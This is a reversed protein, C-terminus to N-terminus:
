IIVVREASGEDSRPKENTSKALKMAMSEVERMRGSADEGVLNCEIIAMTSGVEGIGCGGGGGGLVTAATVSGVEGTGCGGGGGGLVTAATV